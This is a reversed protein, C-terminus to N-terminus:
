LYTGRKLKFREVLSKMIQSQSSLEESAAASQEATASNTQVVSSIQDIGTTIQSISDAQDSSAESIEGIISTMEDVKNVAQLLSQATEDVIQTGNEVAKLSNEILVSTNRSAEASKGALNRVEDAVVAFGKGAAGARAAEVAANLALINTQFAINEITKIIKEIEGSNTNIEQMASIMEQMKQNSEMIQGGVSHVKGTAKQANEATESVHGSIEEISSEVEEIASAQEVAGQSLDQAGMAMQESGNSVHASSEVIQSMTSNLKDLIGNLSEEISSFDGVYDQRTQVTLNGESIAELVASIEGIYGKLRSITAGFIEALYGIEDNSRINVTINRGDRLGLDGEEMTQALKTLGSLPRSVSHRIFVSMIIISIVVLVVSAVCSMLITLNVQESVDAMSIGAFILGNIQGNADKTPVYSCLHEVGLIEAKGVFNQGQELVIAALEPSLTTGVVRQGDQQITTYARVDGQFITFECRMQEKLTDLLQNRDEAGSDQALQYALMNTGNVCRDELMRMALHYFMSVCVAVVAAISGLLLCMVLGNVKSGLHRIKRKRVQNM